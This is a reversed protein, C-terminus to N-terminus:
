PAVKAADVAEAIAKFTALTRGAIARTFCREVFTPLLNAPGRDFDHHIEVRTGGGDRPRTTVKGGIQHALASMLRTGTSADEAHGGPDTGRGDDEVVLRLEGADLRELSLSITGSESPDPFAHKLANTLGEQVIRYASLDVGRPLPFPDGSVHLEVPLGARGVDAVLAELADSLLSVSDTLFYAGFKLALTAISTAISLLAMAAMWPHITGPAAVIGVLATFIVLSMVRPKLLAFYDGATGQGGEGAAALSSIKAQVDSM